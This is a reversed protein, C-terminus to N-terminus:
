MIFPHEGDKDDTEQEKERHGKQSKCHLFVIIWSPPLHHSSFSIIIWDSISDVWSFFPYKVETETERSAGCETDQTTHSSLIKPRLTARKSKLNRQLFKVMPRTRGPTSSQRGLPCRRFHHSDRTPTDTPSSGADGLETGALRLMVDSPNGSNAPLEGQRWEICPISLYCSVSNQLPTEAPASELCQRAYSQRNRPTAYSVTGATSPFIPTAEFGIKIWDSQYYYPAM